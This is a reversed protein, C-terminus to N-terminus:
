YPLHTLWCASVKVAPHIMENNFYPNFIISAETYVSMCQWADVVKIFWDLVREKWWIEIRLLLCCTYLSSTNILVCYHWDSQLIYVFYLQCHAMCTLVKASASSDYFIFWVFQLWGNDDLRVILCASTVLIFVLLSLMTISFM